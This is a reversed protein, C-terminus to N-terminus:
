VHSVGLDVDCLDNLGAVAEGVLDGGNMAPEMTRREQEIVAHPGKIALSERCLRDREGDVVTVRDVHVALSRDM